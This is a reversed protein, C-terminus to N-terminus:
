FEAFPVVTPPSRMTRARSASRSSNKTPPERMRTSSSFLSAGSGEASTLKSPRRVWASSSPVVGSRKAVKARM